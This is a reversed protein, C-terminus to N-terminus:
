QDAKRPLFRLDLRRASSPLKKLYGRDVSWRLTELKKDRAVYPTVTGPARNTGIRIRAAKSDSFRQESAFRHLCGYIALRLLLIAGAIPEIKNRV